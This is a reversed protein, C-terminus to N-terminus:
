ASRTRPTSQEERTAPTPARPAATALALFSREVAAYDVEIDLRALVSYFGFQLRNVFVMDPPMPFFENEQVKRAALAMDKMEDVLVAAYSRRIHYPSRFLPEFCKRTYAIAIKELPGPKSNVLAAVARAFAQEDRALAARHVNEARARHADEVEQVCGYDLFTVVGDPHFIYNGPHPDANLVGGRLTGKFVFRWMTEAWARRADVPAACAEDFTWGRALETTLVRRASHSRVLRPVRVTPDGAHLDAFRSLRTAELEYDLEERFRARVVALMKKTEFRKGGLAGVLGELIGANALDSEVAQVV